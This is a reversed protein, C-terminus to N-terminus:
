RWRRHVWMWQDPQQRIWREFCAQIAATAATIDAERDGSHAVPIIEADIKFRAGRTRTVRAAVIPLAQHRALMAPFPTSPALHGFFPVQEGRYDRQDALLAVSTGGRALRMLKRVSDQGKSFLGGPYWPARMATVYDDVQPNKLRQYVGAIELGARAGGMAAIEWNGLHCGVLVVAKPQAFIARVQPSLDLQIRDPDAWIRDLHFAEAFTRGLMTWMGRIVAKREKPSLEPLCAELNALARRHRQLFPAINRWIFGSFASALDVPLARFVFAVVRFAGYELKSLAPHLPKRAPASSAQGTGGDSGFIVEGVGGGEL